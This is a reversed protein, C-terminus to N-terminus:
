KQLGPADGSSPKGERVRLIRSATFEQGHMDVTRVRILHGGVGIGSPLRGEWMHQSVSAGQGSERETVRAYLPDVQPAHKLPTWEGSDDVSMEVVSRDNGNFVNVLVPTDQLRSRVVEDPAQIEMQYDAPKRAAKYRTAYGNGDFTVVFYGNPTGDSSTAHPIDTEDLAGGWWRGCSAGANIHHHPREGMWGHEEQLFGHMLVHSHASFSLTYPFDRLLEYLRAFDENHEATRLPIHMSLVVLTEPSVHALDSEIWELQQEGLGAIYRTGQEPFVVDALVIFHVPGYDFSYYRPGYVTRWTDFHEYTDKGDYNADHNGLVNYFPIGVTGTARNYPTYTEHNDFSIDGLVVAFAASTGLLEELVDHALYNVERVNRPQPDGLFLAEFRDSERRRVLPFDISEPLPGTPHVTPGALPLRPTTKHVYYFRPLNNESVPTMFGRPKIVFYIAEEHAPLVWRGEGDTATVTRQDSVRVGELGPEGDDRSGNGNEDLFVVGQAFGPEGFGPPPADKGRFPGWLILALLLAGGALLLVLHLPKM